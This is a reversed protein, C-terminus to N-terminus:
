GSLTQNVLLFNIDAPRLKVKEAEIVVCFRVTNDFIAQSAHMFTLVDAAVYYGMAPVPLVSFWQPPTSDGTIDKAQYYYQAYQIMRDDQPGLLGTQTGTTLELTGQSDDGEYYSTSLPYASGTDISFWVQNIKLVKGELANTYASLDITKQEGATQEATTSSFASKLVLPVKSRAAM